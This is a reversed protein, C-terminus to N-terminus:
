SNTILIIRFVATVSRGMSTNKATDIRVSPTAAAWFFVVGDAGCGLAGACVDVECEVVLWEEFVLLGEVLWELVPERVPVLPVERLTPVRVLVRFEDLKPLRVPPLVAPVIFRFLEDAPRFAPIPALFAETFRGPARVRGPRWTENRPPPVALM